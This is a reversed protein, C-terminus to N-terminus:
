HRFPDIGPTLEGGATGLRLIYARASGAVRCNFVKDSLFPGFRTLRVIPGAAQWKATFATLGAEVSRAGPPIPIPDGYEQEVVRPLTWLAAVTGSALAGRRLLERREIGEGAAM